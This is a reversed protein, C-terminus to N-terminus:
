RGRRRLVRGVVVATALALAAAPAAWRLTDATSSDDPAPVPAYRGRPPAHDVEEASRGIMTRRAHAAEAAPVGEVDAPDQAGFPGADEGPLEGPVDGPLDGPLDGPMEGTAFLEDADADANDEAHDDGVGGNRDAAEADAPEGTRGPGAPQEPRPAHPDPPAAPMDADFVPEPSQPVSPDPQPTGSSTTESSDPSEPAPIGPIVRANDDAPSDAALSEALAVAFRDLLRRGATAQQTEEYETIRGKGALTGECVLVTGAGEGPNEAPRPLMSMSLLASGSGRAEQGEGEIAFGNERASIRLVGRYTISSGAIRLRLRGEVAGGDGASDAAAAPGSAPEAEDPTDLQLGPVCRAVREPESLAARVEGVPFPVYVEHEM